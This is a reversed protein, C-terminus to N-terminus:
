HVVERIPIGHQQSLMELAGLMQTPSQAGAPRATDTILERLSPLRKQSKTRVYIRVIQWALTVNRRDDDEARLRAAAFERFLERV